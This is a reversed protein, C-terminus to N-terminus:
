GTKGATVRGMVMVLRVNLEEDLLLLDADKGEQISGKRRDAGVVQAPTLSAMRVADWISAGALGRMNKVLRDMTAASGAFASRDPLKFVGDDYVMEVGNSQRIVTGERLQTACASLGDTILSIRQAGKCKYVLRLLPPPLHKGDAIVQVTLSDLLLGAEVVGAVRYANERRVTSCGSYIHTVDSFGWQVAEEVQEFAADSHAISATIGRRRLEAGLERAGELEVAAGVMRVGDWRELLPLYAEPRPLLLHEPNQAGAQRPSLFPGELHIGLIHCGTCARRAERVADIARLLVDAPAALATPLISTTGHAAHAACMASLEEPSASNVEVGGGGHVHIDIFGPSVYDGDANLEEGGRRYKEPVRDAPCLCAIRGDEVVVTHGELIKEPLIVRGNVIRTLM